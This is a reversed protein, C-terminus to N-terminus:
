REYVQAGQNDYIKNIKNNILDEFELPSKTANIIGGKIFVEYENFHINRSGLFIYYDKQLKFDSPLTKIDKGRYISEIILLRYADSYIRKNDKTQILWGVASVEQDSFIPYDFSKDLPILTATETVEGGLKYFVGSNFMLFIVFFIGIVLFSKKAINKFNLKKFLSELLYKFGIICLPALIILMLHYFRSTQLSVAFYPLTLCLILITFASIALSIFLRDYENRRKILILLGVGLFIQTVIHLYKTINYMIPQNTVLINLSQVTEPDALETFINEYIHNGINVITSFNLGNSTNMYWAIVFVIFILVLSLTLNQDNLKDAIKVFKIKKFKLQISLLLSIVLIFIVMYSLAYHSVGLGLLLIVLILTLEKTRKEFLSILILVFFFEAIQQRFLALMETYFSFSTIFYIVGFLAIKADTFKKFFEYLAVPVMAYIFPYYIKFTLHLNLGCIKSFMPALIVISLLSNISSKITQNWFSSGVVLNSTYYEAFVDWGYLYDSILSGRYLLSLSVLFLTLSYYKKPIKDLALLLIIVSVLFILLINLINMDYFNMLYTGWISFFPLFILFLQPSSGIDLEIFSPNVYDKDRYYSIISFLSVIFTLAFVLNTTSIPNSVGLNVLLNILFGTFMLTALSLAISYLITKENNLDHLRLMRIILIGPVYILYIFCILQRLIPIDINYGQLFILGITSIQLALIVTLFRKIDWNNMQFPNIFKM